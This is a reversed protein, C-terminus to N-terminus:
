DINLHMCYKRNVSRYVYSKGKKKKKFKFGLKGTKKLEKKFM